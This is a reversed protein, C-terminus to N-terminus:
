LRAHRESGCWGGRRRARRECGASAGPAGAAHRCAGGSGNGVQAHVRARVARPRRWVPAHAGRARGGGGRVRAALLAHHLAPQWLGPHVAGALPHSAPPRPRLDSCPLWPATLPPQPHCALGPRSRTRLGAAAAAAAGGEARRDPLQLLDRQPVPSSGSALASAEDPARRCCVASTLPLQLGASHVARARCCRGTYDLYHEGGLRPQVEAAYLEDIRGGYGYGPFRSLPSPLLSPPPFHSTLRCRRRRHACPPPPPPHM